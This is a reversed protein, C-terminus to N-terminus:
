INGFTFRCMQVLISTAPALTSSNERVRVGPYKIGLDGNEM